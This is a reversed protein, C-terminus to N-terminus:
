EKVLAMKISCSQTTCRLERLAATPALRNWEALEQVSNTAYDCHFRAPSPGLVPDGLWALNLSELEAAQRYEDLRPMVRDNEYLYVDIAHLMWGGPPLLRSMDAFCDGLKESPVHELVSVSFVVDFSEDQLKKSFEGMYTPVVEVGKIKAVEKPGNGLGEFKDVNVCSNHKALHSLLRSDGGGIEAIRLGKRDGLESMVWADQINKLHRVDRSALGKEWWEFFERKRIIDYM